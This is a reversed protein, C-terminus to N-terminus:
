KRFYPALAFVAAHPRLSYAKADDRLAAALRGRETQVRALLLWHTYNTSEHETATRLDAAARTLDGASEYVLARQDYASAGWPEINIADTADALAASANGAREAAQSRRLDITSLLGPLQVLAGGVALAVLLGRVPVRLPTAATSLRGAIVTIGALALVTVATSEWMWDVSAHLLYVAFAALFAVSVGASARRHARRRVAIATALAALAVLVILILGPAGLEALNQLWINHANQLFEDTTGHVNWWFQFTGAGTGTVPHASFAKLASKWVPYRTGSLSLLRQSPNSSADDVPHSFSHWAQSVLHPGFAAGAAVVVIAGAILLARGPRRPLGLRDVGLKHTLLAGAACLVMGLILAALVGGAGHTGTGNAIAPAARVAVIGIAAAGAAIVAHSLATIRNRSLALVLLVGLTTGGVGARSYSLYAAMSAAPLLGLAIARRWPTVEHASWALAITMCMAAWAAVANWYGFPYSLRSTDFGHNVYDVPYLAPYLRSGVALLCVLLAGFGLGAAATRWTDRDVTLAILAVLGLYDACRAVEFTTQEASETWLLSLATWAAYALLAGLLLLVVTHPRVRPLLGLAIGAALAVWILLGYEEFVVVDYAGGRLAYMLVLGVAAVFAIGTALRDSRATKAPRRRVGNTAPKFGASPTSGHVIM